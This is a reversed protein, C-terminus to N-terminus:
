LEQGPVAVLYALCYWVSQLGVRSRHQCFELFATNFGV